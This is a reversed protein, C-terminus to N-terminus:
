ALKQLAWRREEFRYWVQGLPSLADAAAKRVHLRGAEYASLQRGYVDEVGYLQPEAAAAPTTAEEADVVSPTKLTEDAASAPKQMLQAQLAKQVDADNGILGADQQDVDPGHGTKRVQEHMAEDERRLAAEEAREGERRLFEVADFSGRRVENRTVGADWALSDYFRSHRTMRDARQRFGYRSPWLFLGIVGYITLTAAGMTATRVQQPRRLRDVRLEKATLFRFQPYAVIAAVPLTAMAMWSYRYYSIAKTLLNKARAHCENRLLMLEVEVQDASTDLPLWDDDRETRLAHHTDAPDVVEGM